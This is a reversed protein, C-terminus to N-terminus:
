DHATAWHVYFCLNMCLMVDKEANVLKIEKPFSHEFSLVLKTVRDLVFAPGSSEVAM